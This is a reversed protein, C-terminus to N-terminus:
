LASMYVFWVCVCVYVASLRGVGRSRRLSYCLQLSHVFMLKTIEYHWTKAIYVVLIQNCFDMKSRPM